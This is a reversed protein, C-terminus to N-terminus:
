AISGELDRSKKQAASGGLYHGHEVGAVVAKDKPAPSQDKGGAMDLSQRQRWIHKTESIVADQDPSPTSASVMMYDGAWILSGASKSDTKM